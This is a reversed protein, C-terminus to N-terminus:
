TTTPPKRVLQVSRRKTRKKAIDILSVAHGAIIECDKVNFNILTYNFLEWDNKLFLNIPIQRNSEWWWQDGLELFMTKHENDSIAGFNYMSIVVEDSNQIIGIYENGGYSLLSIFPYKQVILSQTHKNHM